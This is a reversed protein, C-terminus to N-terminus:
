NKYKTSFKKYLDTQMNGLDVERGEIFANTVKSTRMDLVDGESIILTADKGVALTGVRNEIGLIKAPNASISALAEEKTLGYAAATGALFAINRANMAEMDGQNQLCFLISDKQLLYPLKYILDTESEPLDPLDHLRNIMVAIHNEKLMNTIKYSEKGGVIVM